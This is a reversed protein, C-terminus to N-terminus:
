IGTIVVYGDFKAKSTLTIDGTATITVDVIIETGDAEYVKVQLKRTTGLLHTTALITFTYPKSAGVWDAILFDVDKTRAFTALNSPTVAKETNTKAITEADTALKVLGLTTTTAQDVNTQLILWNAPTTSPTSDVTCIATDGVQLVVGDVTGATTVKYTWGANAAPFHDTPLAGKFVLADVSELLAAIDNWNPLKVWTGSGTANTCYYIGAGNNGTGTYDVMRGVFNETIPLTAVAEFKVNKIESEGLLIIDNGIKM